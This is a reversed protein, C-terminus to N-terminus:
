YWIYLEYIVCGGGSSDQSLIIKNNGNQWYALDGINVLIFDTTDIHGTIQGANQARSEITSTIDISNM